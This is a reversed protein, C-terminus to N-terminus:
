TWARSEYCTGVLTEELITGGKNQSSSGSEEAGRRIRPLGADANAGSGAIIVAWAHKCIKHMLSIANYRHTEQDQVICLRDVWLYRGGIKRTFEIADEVTRSLSSIKELSGPLCLHDVTAATLKFAPTKGWVYSLALYKKNTVIEVLRMENCDVALTKIPSDLVDGCSHIDRCTGLWRDVLDYDLSALRQVSYSERNIDRTKWEQAKAQTELSQTWSKAAPVERWENSNEQEIINELRLPPVLYGPGTPASAIRSDKKSGDTPLLEHFFRQQEVYQSELDLGHRPWSKAKSIPVVGGSFLM